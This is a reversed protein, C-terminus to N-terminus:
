QRPTRAMLEAGLETVDYGNEVQYKVLAMLLGRLNERKTGKRADKQDKVVPDKSKEVVKLDPFLNEVPIQPTFGNSQPRGMPYSDMARAYEIVGPFHSPNDIVVTLVERGLYPRLESNQLVRRIGRVIISLLHPNHFHRKEIKGLAHIAYIVNKITNTDNKATHDLCLTQNIHGLLSALDTFRELHEECKEGDPVTNADFDNFSTALVPLTKSTNVRVTAVSDNLGGSIVSILESAIKDNYRSTAACLVESIAIRTESDPHQMGQKIISVIGSETQDTLKGNNFNRRLYAAAYRSAKTLKTALVGQIRDLTWHYNAFDFAGEEIATAVTEISSEEYLKLLDATDIYKAIHKRLKASTALKQIVVSKVSALKEEDGSIARRCIKRTFELVGSEKWQSKTDKDLCDFIEEVVGIAAEPNEFIFNELHQVLLTKKEIGPEQEQGYEAPKIQPLSFVTEHLRRVIARLATVRKEPDGLAILPDLGYRESLLRILEDFAAIQRAKWRDIDMVTHDAGYASHREGGEITPVDYGGPNAALDEAIQRSFLQQLSFVGNVLGATDIHTQTDALNVAKITIKAATPECRGKIDLFWIYVNFLLDM